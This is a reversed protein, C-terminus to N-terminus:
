RRKQRLARLRDLQLWDRAPLGLARDLLTAMLGGPVGTEASWLVVVGVDQDPLMGIMARYGQVAGAHYVLKHGSYDMVRWGLGYWADRLRERRWSSGGLQDRTQVRPRQVEEILAPPLVEPRYGLQAIMWQAMDRASANVGAAPPIRYYTEKPRVTVWRGRQRVHPRAWSGSSELADRGFTATYMGLPHFLRREVQHTYFDGTVAFTLDGILSFAVNQYAYCDGVGCLPKIVDLRAILLPYPEDQELLRDYTNFPLGVRHSLIEEVTLAQGEALGKLKFAPLHDSVQTDWRLAGEAVLQAALTGAFGKSLSAVRFVTDGDVQERRGSQTVGWGEAFLVRDQHVMAVALSPVDGDSVIRPALRQALAAVHSYDAQAAASAAQAAAGPAAATTAAGAAMCMAGLAIAALTLSARNARGAGSAQRGTVAPSWNRRDITPRVAQTHKMGTPKMRARDGGRGDSSM